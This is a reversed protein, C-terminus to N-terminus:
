KHAWPPEKLEDIGGVGVAEGKWSSAEDVLPM